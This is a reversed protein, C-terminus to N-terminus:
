GASMGGDIGVVQGTMYDSDSGALFVALAALGDMDGETGLPIAELSASSRDPDDWVVATMATNYPGPAIANVRVGYPAWELALCRTMMNVAAKSAGYIAEFRFARTAAISSINIIKGYGRAMMHPAAARCGYFVGGINTDIIQRFEGDGMRETSDRMVTPPRLTMDPFPATALETFAGANNVLIDVGGLDGITREVLGDVQAPDTVDTPVAIARRGIRRVANLAADLDDSARAALALDAGAEAYSLAIALGIGRSAGTVIATRGALEDGM